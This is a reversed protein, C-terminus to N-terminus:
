PRERRGGSVDVLIDNGDIRVPLRALRTSAPNIGAGTVADYQWEHASCTLVRGELRGRSLPVGLHACRDEYAHVAGELHVLLVRVGDLLTGAMEGEWLDDLRAARLYAM